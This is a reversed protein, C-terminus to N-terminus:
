RKLILHKSIELQSLHVLQLKLYQDFLKRRKEKEKKKMERKEKTREKKSKTRTRMRKMLTTKESM